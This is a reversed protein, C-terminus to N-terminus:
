NKGSAVVGAALSTARAWIEAAKLPKTRASVQSTGKSPASTSL